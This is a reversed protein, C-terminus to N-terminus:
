KKVIHFIEKLQFIQLNLGGDLYDVEKIKLVGDNAKSIEYVSNDYQIYYSKEYDM